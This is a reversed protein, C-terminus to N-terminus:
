RPSATSNRMILTSAEVVRETPADPTEIQALLLRVAEAGQERPRQRMTTLSYMEAFQHDDIGVVSLETPVAIGLRRAAVIAGIASEDCVGVIATPRHRRNSLLEAAAAYSEPISPEAPALRV